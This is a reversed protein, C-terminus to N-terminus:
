SPASCALFLLLLIVLTQGQTAGTTRAGYAGIGKVQPLVVDPGGNM